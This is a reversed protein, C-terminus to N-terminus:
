KSVMAARADRVAALAARLDGEIRALEAGTGAPDKSFHFGDATLYLKRLSRAARDAMAHAKNVKAFRERTGEVTTTAM